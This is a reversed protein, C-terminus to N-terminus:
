KWNIIVRLCNGNLTIMETYGEVFYNGEVGLFINNSQVPDIFIISSSLPPLTITQAYVVSSTSIVCLVWLSGLLYGTTKKRM